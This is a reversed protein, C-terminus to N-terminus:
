GMSRKLDDVIESPSRAAVPRPPRGAQLYPWIGSRIPEPVVHELYELATGRLKADSTSLARRSLEIADTDFALGLLTFVHDLARDPLVARQFSVIDRGDKDVRLAATRASWAAHSAEVEREAARVVVNRAPRLTEDSRVLERLALGARYRLEFETDELADGLGRVVRPHPVGSLVRPIRRRLRLPRERDLLADVLQGAIRPAVKGLARAAADTTADHELLPIVLSVLELELPPGDLAALVRAVDASELEVTRAALSPVTPPLSLSSRDAPRDARARLEEIQRLLADRDLELQTQSLTLRTTADKVDSADLKLRGSKLSAALESVYGRELRLAFWVCLSAAAVIALLGARTTLSPLFAGVVLVLGSGLAEGFRDGAVDILTKTSRKQKLPLPAFLPEYASRFLSAELTKSAGRLLIFVWAKPVVVGLAGLGLMSAPLAALALGLGLEALVWRAISLQLLVSAVSTITYFVAFFSVLTTASTAQASVQAKFCFDVLASSFGTLIVLAAITRLYSSATVSRVDATEPSPADSGPRAGSLARLLFAAFLSIGTLAPLMAGPGAQAGFFRAFLGGSLGGLASGAAVGTAIRRVTHPDFRENVISWFGSVAIGTAVTAHLYLMVTAAEPVRALLFWEVAHLAGSLAVVVPVSLGPGYRTVGRSFALVLPLGVAAAALMVKPLESAPFQSLFLADRCARSAVLHAVLLAACAAPM